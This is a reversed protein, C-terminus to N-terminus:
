EDRRRRELERLDRRVIEPVGVDERLARRAYGDYQKTPFTIGVEESTDDDDVRPRGAHTRKM